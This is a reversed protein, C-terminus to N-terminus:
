KRSDKPSDLCREEFSNTLIDRVREKLGVSENESFAIEVIKGDIITKITNDEKM